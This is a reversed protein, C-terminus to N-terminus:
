SIPCADPGIPLRIVFTTGEGVETEINITGNHKNVIISHAIALGQGSGKGVGKTTFFPDFIQSQIEKPIGSGTDSIRIEVWDGDNQTKITIIGKTEYGDGTINAIAHSANIIINLIVQGFEGQSCPVLPLEPDFETKVDAVYKWENRTVTIANQIATNIDIESKGKVGPHAFEKMALVIESVRDVGELTQQISKPIEELLYAIDIEEILKETDAIMESSVSGTKAAKLLNDHKKILGAIDNFSDDLFHTNDGVYQAPTNIEHAIGSALQGISELKQKQLLQRELERRNTINEATGVVSVIKEGEYLPTFNLMVFIKSGKKCIIETEFQNLCVGLTKVKTIKKNLKEINASDFLLSVPKDVLEEFTYGTMESGARNVLTANGELDIVFIANSVSEMVSELFKTTSDILEDTQRRTAVFALHKRSCAANKLILIIYGTLLCVFLSGTILVIWPQWTRGMAIFEPTPRCQVLWERDAVELREEYQIDTLQLHNDDGATLTPTKCPCSSHFYLLREDAQASPDIIRVDINQTDTHTLGNKVIDCIRYTGLVFGELHERRDEITDISVDKQYIPTFVMFGFQHGTKLALTIRATAIRAGTECSRNLAELHAPNSAPDFGLALKNIEFPEVYHVPFYEDRRDARIMDGQNARQTIQFDVFGESRVEREYETRQSDCVRPIWAIAQIGSAHQLFPEVFMQFENRDVHNSGNYFAKISELLFLNTEINRRLSYIHNEAMQEFDSQIRDLEWQRITNFLFFFLGTGLCILLMLPVLCSLSRIKYIDGNKPTDSM